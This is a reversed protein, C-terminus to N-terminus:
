HFCKTFGCSMGTRLEGPDEFDVSASVHFMLLLGLPHEEPVAIMVADCLVAPSIQARPVGFVHARRAM